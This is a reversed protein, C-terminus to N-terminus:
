EKDHTVVRGNDIEFVRRCNACRMAKANLRTPVRHATTCFPCELTHHTKPLPPPVAKRVSLVAADYARAFARCDPYREEPKKSLAKMVVSSVLAPVSAAQEHLPPPAKTTHAMMTAVATAGKFPVQAALLEYVAIALSYQDARGDYNDGMIVEPAMYQPTGLVMNAMTHVTEGTVRRSEVRVKIVGFDALYPVGDADFMINEPKVDRHIFGRSHVYDLASAIPGLWASIEQPTMAHLKGDGLDLPQQLRLSGLALYQLVAFPTGDDDGVDLVKLVHPHALDILSRIERDFREAFGEEATISGSPIKIAVERGSPRGCDRDREAALFVSAMGGSGLHSRIKYDRRVGHLVRGIWDDNSPPVPWEGFAFGGVFLV